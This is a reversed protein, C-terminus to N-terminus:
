SAAITWPVFTGIGGTVGDSDCNLAADLVMEPGATGRVEGPEMEFGIEPGAAGRVERPEMGLGTEPGELPGDDEM